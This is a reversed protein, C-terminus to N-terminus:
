TKISSLSPSGITPAKSTTAVERIQDNHSGTFGKSEENLFVGKIPATGPMTGLSQAKVRVPQAWPGVKIPKPGYSPLICFYM